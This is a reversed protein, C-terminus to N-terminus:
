EAEIKAARVVEAYRREETRLLETLAATSSGDPECGAAVMVERLKPLKVARAAAGELKKLVASPTGAPAFWAHWGGTVHFGGLGAEALTPLEPLEPWRVAGSFALARARGTKVQQLAIAPPIFLVQIEGGLLANFAPAVGKYPVHALQTGSRANFMEAALHLTNGIGPSGYTLPKDRSKALAILEGVSRANVAPHVLLLYGPFTCLNIIPAFDRFVDYPLKRYVRPNIVFSPTVHLLTHGDPASKAVIETGIIGNAGARNDIVFPQGFEVEIQNTATRAILDPTGGAPFPIVLRISRQPYASTTQAATVPLAHFAVAALLVCVAPSRRSRILVDGRRWRRRIPLM